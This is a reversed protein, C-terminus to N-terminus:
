GRIDINTDMREIILDKIDKEKLVKWKDIGNRWDRYLEKETIPIELKIYEIKDTGGYIWVYVQQGSDICLQKCSCKHYDHISRSILIDGCVLCKIATVKM